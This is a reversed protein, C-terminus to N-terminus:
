ILTKYHKMGEVFDKKALHRYHQLYTCYLPIILQYFLHKKYSVM